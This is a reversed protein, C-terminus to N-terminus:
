AAEVLAAKRQIWRSANRVVRRYPTWKGDTRQMSWGCVGHSVSRHRVTVGHITTYVLGGLTNQEALAQLQEEIPALGPIM